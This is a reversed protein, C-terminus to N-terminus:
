EPCASGILDHMDLFARLLDAKRAVPVVVYVQQLQVPMTMTAQETRVPATRALMTM